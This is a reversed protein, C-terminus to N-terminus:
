RSCGPARHRPPCRSTGTCDDCRPQRRRAPSDATSTAHDIRLKEADPFDTRDAYHMVGEADRWRFVEDGGSSTASLTALTAVIIACAMGRGMASRSKM